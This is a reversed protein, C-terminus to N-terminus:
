LAAEKIGRCMIGFAKRWPIERCMEEKHVLLFRLAFLKALRKYMYRYLVGRDFFFKEHYGSFWTSERVKENGIQVPVKYVKM